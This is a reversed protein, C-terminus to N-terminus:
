VVLLGRFRGIAGVGRFSRSGATLSQQLDGSGARWATFLGLSIAVAVIAALAFLLVPTNIAIGQQRPLNTPLIAPLVNVAWVAILIGVIGGASSLAFSEAFLQQILRGRGAGLAARVALEKCRTSTRALLLGAVNACAVLLLLGVAGSLTLLATRVDGVMADALPVVAADNLDVEKGYQDRIRHA